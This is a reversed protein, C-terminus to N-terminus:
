DIKLGELEQRDKREIVEEANRVMYEPTKWHVELVRRIYREQMREM